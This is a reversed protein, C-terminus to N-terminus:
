RSMPRVFADPPALGHLQLDRLASMAERRENFANVCVQLYKGSPIVFGQYGKSALKQVQQDVSQQSKYTVIQITYKGHPKAQTEDATSVDPPLKERSPQIETIQLGGIETPLPPIMEIPKIPESEVPVETVEQLPAQAAQKGSDVGRCYVFVNVMLMAIFLLLAKDLRISLRYRDFFAGQSDNALSSRSSSSDFLDAQM